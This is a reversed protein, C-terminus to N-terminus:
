RALQEDIQSENHIEGREIGDVCLAINSLVAESYTLEGSKTNTYEHLEAKTM